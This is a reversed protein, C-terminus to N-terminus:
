SLKKEAYLQVQNLDTKIQLDLKDFLKEMIMVGRMLTINSSYKGREIEDTLDFEKINNIISIKYVRNSDIFQEFSVVQGDGYKVSNEVAEITAISIDTVDEETAQNLFLFHEQRSRAYQIPSFEGKGFVFFKDEHFVKKKQIEKASITFEKPDFKGSSAIESNKLKDLIKQVLTSDPEQIDKNLRKKYLKIWSIFDSTVGTVGDNLIEILLNEVENEELVISM